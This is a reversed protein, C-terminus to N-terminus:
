GGITAGRRRALLLGGLGLMALAGLALPATTSGTEPLEGGGAPPTPAPATPAPSTPAPSTPDTPSPVATPEEECDLTLVVYAERDEDFEEILVSAPECMEAEADVGYVTDMAEPDIVEWGFKGTEDTTQPNDSTDESFWQSGEPVTVFDDGDQMTLTVTAGDILEGDQDQVEGYILHDPVPLLVVTVTTEEDEVITASEANGQLDSGEPAEVSVVYDGVPVNDAWTYTGDDETEESEFCDERDAEACVEVSAEAVPAGDVDEVTVTLSGYVAPVLVFDLEATEGAVITVPLTAADLQIADEDYGPEGEAPLTPPTATVQYDGVPLGAANYSGNAGTTTTVCDDASAGEACIQMEVGALPNDDADTVTGTLNGEEVIDDGGPNFIYRGLVGGSNRSSSVLANPGGDILAGNVLSGALKTFTGADGTGATYGVAVSAGGTEWGIDSYNFELQVDGENGTAGSRDTVILQASILKDDQSNYYGVGVWNVCFTDADSGYTVLSSGDGRTDIDAFYPAIMANGTPGTLDEPTFQYLGADFTVNGNNNIFVSNHQEGFFNISFPLGYEDSYGDDNAPINEQTCVDLDRIANTAAAAPTAALTAAVLTAFMMALAAVLAVIRRVSRSPHAASAALLRM